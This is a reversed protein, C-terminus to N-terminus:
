GGEERVGESQIKPFHGRVGTAGRCVTNLLALMGQPANAHSLVKAISWHHLTVSMFSSGREKFLEGDVTLYSHTTM